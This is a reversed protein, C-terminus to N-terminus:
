PKRLRFSSPHRDLDVHRNGGCHGDTASHKAIRPVQARVSEVSEQQEQPQPTSMAASCITRGFLVRMTFPEVVLRQHPRALPSRKSHTRTARCVGGQLPDGPRPIAPWFKSPRHGPHGAADEAMPGVSISSGRIWQCHGQFGWPGTLRNPVDQVTFAICHQRVRTHEDRVFRLRDRRTNAPSQRRGAFCVKTSIQLVRRTNVLQAIGAVQFPLATTAFEAFTQM